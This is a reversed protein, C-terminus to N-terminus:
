EIKPFYKEIGRWKSEKVGGERRKSKSKQALNGWDNAESCQGNHCHHVGAWVCVNVGCVYIHFNLLSTIKHFQSFTYVSNRNSKINWYKENFHFSFIGNAERSQRTHTSHGMHSNENKKKKREGRKTAKSLRDMTRWVRRNHGKLTFLNRSKETLLESQYYCLLTFAASACVEVPFIDSINRIRVLLVSLVCESIDFRARAYLRIPFIQFLAIFLIRCHRRASLYKDRIGRAHDFLRRTNGNLGWGVSNIEYKSREPVCELLCPILISVSLSLCLILCVISSLAVSASWSNGNVFM